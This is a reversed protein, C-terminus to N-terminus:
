DIEVAEFIALPVMRAKNLTMTNGNLSYNDVNELVEMFQSEVEMDACAMLTTAMKSLKIQYGEKLQYIGNFKNCRGKGFVENDKSSFTVFANEGRVDNAMLTVLKWKTNEISVPEKTINMEPSQDNSNKHTMKKSTNCSRFLVLITFVDLVFSKM